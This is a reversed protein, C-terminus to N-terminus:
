SQRLRGAALGPVARVIGQVFTRAPMGIEAGYRVATGNACSLRGDAFTSGADGIRASDAAVTIAAIGRRELAPLRGIGADDIGIGADNFLAALADVRLAADPNGALLGGHSGTVVIAGKDGPQVLSASDIAVVRPRGPEDWLIQRGEKQPAPVIDRLPARIMQEACAICASGAQCGLDAAVANVFSIRGRAMMDDADGIRASAHSTTAAAIGLAQCYEIVAIGARDRGVGADNLIIARAGAEVALHASYFGGHSAAVIVRGRHFATLSTVSAIAIVPDKIIKAAAM